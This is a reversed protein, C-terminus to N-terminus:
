QQTHPRVIRQREPKVLPQQSAEAAAARELARRKRSEALRDIEIRRHRDSLIQAEMSAEDIFQPQGLPPMGLSSLYHDHIAEVGLWVEQTQSTQAFIRNRESRPPSRGSPLVVAPRELHKLRYTKPTMFSPDPPPPGPPKKPSPTPAAASRLAAEDKANHDDLQPRTEDLPRQKERQSQPLNVAPSFIYSGGLLRPPKRASMYSLRTRSSSLDSTRQSLSLSATTSRTASSRSDGYSLLSQRGGPIDDTQPQLEPSLVRQKPQAQSPFSKPPSQPPPPPTPPPLAQTPSPADQNASNTTGQLNLAAFAAVVGMMPNWWSHEPAPEAKSVQQRPELKDASPTSDLTRIAAAAQAVSKLSRPKQLVPGPEAAEPMAAQATGPAHEPEKQQVVITAEPEPVTELVPRFAPRDLTHATTTEAMVALAETTPEVYEVHNRM